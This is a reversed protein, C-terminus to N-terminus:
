PAEIWDQPHDLLPRFYAMMRGEEPGWAGSKWPAIGHIALRHVLVSQGPLLPLKRPPCRDFVTRRAEQYVDTLDVEAYADPELGKFRNAFAERIVHHSGEYVVLPAAEPSAANLAMGLIFAHPEKLMRRRNPGVPLLGDLHAAFRDRRFAFATDSESEDRRPYGQYVVSIQAKHWHEQPAVLQEWPGTLPVGDLSGDGANDLMDVGVFWTGGHRLWKARAAESAVLTRARVAAAEAWELVGSDAPLVAYGRTTLSM